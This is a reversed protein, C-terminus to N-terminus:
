LTNGEVFYEDPQQKPDIPPLENGDEDERYGCQSLVTMAYPTALAFSFKRYLRVPNYKDNGSNELDIDEPDAFRESPDLLDQNFGKYVELVENDLDLVYAYECFLSDGAFGISNQLKLGGREQIMEVIGGGTDRSLEPYLEGFKRSIDMSVFDSNPDAGCDVWRQKHEESSIWSCARVAQKLKDLDMRNQIFDCITNGQGEPYHDWQGYQAVKYEGDLVVVTLGRTGM